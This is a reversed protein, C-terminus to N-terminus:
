KKEKLTYIKKGLPQPRAGKGAMIKASSLEQVSGDPWIHIGPMCAMVDHDEEAQGFKVAARGSYRSVRMGEKEGLFTGIKLDKAIEYLAMIEPRYKEHGEKFSTLMFVVMPQIPALTRIVNEMNRRYVVADDRSTGTEYPHVSIRRHAFTGSGLAVIKEAARQAIKDDLPWGATTFETPRYPSVLSKVVDGYDAPTSDEHLFTTDRYDFPDSDYYNLFRKSFYKDPNIILIDMNGAKLAKKVELCAPCQEFAQIFDRLLDGLESEKTKLGKRSRLFPELGYIEEVLKWDWKKKRIKDIFAQWYESDGESFEWNETIEELKRVLAGLKPYSDPNAITREVNGRLRRFVAEQERVKEAIKLVAAFPMVQVKKSADAACHECQHRCGKTVQVNALDVSFFKEEDEPSVELDSFLDLHPHEVTPLESKLEQLRDLSEKDTPNHKLAQVVEVVKKRLEEGKESLPYKQFLFARAIKLEISAEKERNEAAQFPNEQIVPLHFKEPSM